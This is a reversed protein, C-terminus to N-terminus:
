EQDNKATRLKVSFLFGAIITGTGDRVPTPYHTTRYCLTFGTSFKGAERVMPM